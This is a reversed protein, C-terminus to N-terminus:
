IPAKLRDIYTSLRIKTKPNVELFQIGMDYQESEPLTRFWATRGRLSIPEHGPSLSFEVSMETAVPFVAPTVCRAGGEGIDKTLTEVVRLQGKPHLRVPLYAPGRPSKRREEPM